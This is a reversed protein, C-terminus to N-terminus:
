VHGAMLVDLELKAGHKLLQRVLEVHGNLAAANIPAWDNIDVSELNFHHKLLERFVDV